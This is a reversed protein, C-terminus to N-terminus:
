VMFKRNDLKEDVGDRANKRMLILVGIYKM